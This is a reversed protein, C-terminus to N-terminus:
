KMLGVATVASSNFQERERERGWVGLYCFLRLALLIFLVYKPHPPPPKGAACVLASLLLIFKWLLEM